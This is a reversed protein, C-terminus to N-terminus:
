FSSKQLYRKNQFYQNKYTYGGSNKNLCKSIFLHQKHECVSVLCKIRFTDNFILYLSNVNLYLSVGYYTECIKESEKSFLM